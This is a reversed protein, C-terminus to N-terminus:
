QTWRKRGILRQSLIIAVPLNCDFAMDAAGGVIDDVEEPREVRYVHFGCLTLSSDVISGMPVQWSNFEAYEGRM